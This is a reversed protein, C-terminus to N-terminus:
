ATFHKLLSAMKPYGYADREQMGNVMEMAYTGSLLPDEGPLESNRGFRPDRGYYSLRVNTLKGFRISLKAFPSPMCYNPSTGTGLPNGDYGRRGLSTSIQVM